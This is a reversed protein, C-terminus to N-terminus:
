QSTVVEGEENLTLPSGNQDRCKKLFDLIVERDTPASANRRHLADTAAAQEEPTQALIIAILDDM